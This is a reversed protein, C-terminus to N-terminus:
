KDCKIERRKYSRTVGYEGVVVVGNLVRVIEWKLDLILCIVMALYGLKIWWLVGCVNRYM